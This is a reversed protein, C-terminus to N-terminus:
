LIDSDLIITFPGDNILSVKMDAAFIGTEVIDIKERCASVIYEFLDNALEDVDNLDNGYKPLSIIEKRLHEYGEFNHLAAENM